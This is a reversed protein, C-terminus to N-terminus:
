YGSHLGRPGTGASGGTRKHRMKFATEDTSCSRPLYVNMGDGVGVERAERAEVARVERAEVARVEPAERTEEAGDVAASGAAATPRM